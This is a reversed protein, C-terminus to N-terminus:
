GGDAPVGLGSQIERLKEQIRLANRPGMRLLHRQALSLGELEEDPYEYFNGVRQLEAAGEIRPAQLLERIARGLTEEFSQEPLGLDAFAEEFLPELLRYVHVATPVDLSAFVETAVDYRAHSRPDTVLRDDKRAVQFPDEPALFLLQERPSEGDAVNAVAAVFRRILDPTQLWARLEPRASVGDALERAVADSEELAPLAISEPLPPASGEEVEEVPRGEVPEDPAPVLDAAEPAPSEGPPEQGAGSFYYFYALAAAALLAVVVVVPFARSRPRRPYLSRRTGKIM